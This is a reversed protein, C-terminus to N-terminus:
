IGYDTSRVYPDQNWGSTNHTRHDVKAQFLVSKMANAINHSYSQARTKLNTIRCAGSKKVQDVRLHSGNAFDYVGILHPKFM